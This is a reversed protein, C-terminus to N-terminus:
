LVAYQKLRPYPQRLKPRQLPDRRKIALFAEWRVGGKQSRRSRMTRWSRAGHRYGGLLSGMNRPLSARSRGTYPTCTARSRHMTQQGSGGTM